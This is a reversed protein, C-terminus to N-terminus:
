TEASKAYEKAPVADKTEPPLEIDFSKGYDSFSFDADVALRAGEPIPMGPMAEAFSSLDMDMRIQFRTALGSQKDVTMLYDVESFMERMLEMFADVDLGPIGMEELQQEMGEQGQRQLVKEFDLALDYTVTEGDEAVVEASEAMALIERFNQPGMGQGMDAMGSALGVKQFVWTGDPMRMYMRGGAIYGEMDYAMPERYGMKIKALPEGDKQEFAMDYQLSVTLDGQEGMDAMEMTMDGSMRFSDAGQMNERAQRFFDLPNALKATGGGGCAALTLAALCLCAALSLISAALGKRM